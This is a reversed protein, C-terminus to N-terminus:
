ESDETHSLSSIAFAVENGHKAEKGFTYSLAFLAKETKLFYVESQLDEKGKTKKVGYYYDFSENKTKSSRITNAVGLKYEYRSLVAKKIGPLLM